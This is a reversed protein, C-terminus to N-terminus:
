PLKIFNGFETSLAHAAMIETNILNGRALGVALSSGPHFAQTINTFVIKQQKAIDKVDRSKLRDFEIISDKYSTAPAMLEDIKIFSDLLDELTGETNSDNTFIFTGIEGHEETTRWQVKENFNEFDTVVERIKESLNELTTTLGGDDMHDYDADLIFAHRVADVKYFDPKELLRKSKTINSMAAQLSSKGGTAFLCVYHNNALAYIKNPMFINLPLGFRINNTNIEKIASEVMSELIKPLDKVKKVEGETLDLVEIIKALFAVDHLGECYLFSLRIM